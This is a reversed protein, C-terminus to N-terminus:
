TTFGEVHPRAPAVGGRRAGRWGGRRRDCDDGARGLKGPRTHAIRVAAQLSLGDRTLGADSAQITEGRALYLVDGDADYNARDLVLGNIEVNVADM